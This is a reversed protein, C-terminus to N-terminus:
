SHKQKHKQKGGKRFIKKLSYIVKAASHVIGVSNDLAIQKCFAKGCITLAAVLASLLLQLMKLSLTQSHSFAEIAIVAAATGSIVGCIDGVVDNCISSVKGANRLLWIAEAAGPVKRSSMSHFPREEAATVAVGLLDFLVGIGIIALLVFFAGVLSAAGLLEQSFFSFVASILLSLIFITILWVARASSTKATHTQKKHKGAPAPQEPKEKM